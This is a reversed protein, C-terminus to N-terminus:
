ELLNLFNKLGSTAKNSSQMHPAIFRLNFKIITSSKKFM